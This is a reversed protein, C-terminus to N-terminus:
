PSIRYIPGSQWIYDDNAAPTGAMDVPSTCLVGTFEDNSTHGGSACFTLGQPRGSTECVGGEDIGDGAPGDDLSCNNDIGDCVEDAGHHIHHGTEESEDCDCVGPPWWDGDTDEDGDFGGDSFDWWADEGSESSDGVLTVNAMRVLDLVNLSGDCNIDGSQICEGSDSGLVNNATMVIDLVNLQADDNVDGARCRTEHDEPGEHGQAPTAFLFLSGAQLLTSLMFVKDFRLNVRM